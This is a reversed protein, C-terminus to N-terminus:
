QAFIGGTSFKIKIEKGSYNYKETLDEFPSSLVIAQEKETYIANCIQNDNLIEM